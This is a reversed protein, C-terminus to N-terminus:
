NGTIADWFSSPHRRKRAQFRDWEAQTSAVAFPYFVPKTDTKWCLHKDRQIAHPCVYYTDQFLLQHHFVTWYPENPGLNSTWGMKRAIRKPVAIDGCESRDPTCADIPISHVEFDFHIRKIPHQTTTAIPQRYARAPTTSPAPKKIPAPPANDGVVTNIPPAAALPAPAAREPQAAFWQDYYPQLFAIAPPVFFHATLGTVVAAIAMFAVKGIHRAIWSFFGTPRCYTCDDFTSTSTM